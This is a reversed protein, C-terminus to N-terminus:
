FVEEDDLVYEVGSVIVKRKYIEVDSAIVTRPIVKERKAKERLRRGYDWLAEVQPMFSGFMSCATILQQRRHTSVGCNFMNRRFCDISGTHIKEGAVCADFVAKIVDYILAQLEEDKLWSNSLVRYEVGYSKPRFAGMAGYLEERKEGGEDWYKQFPYLYCDLVRVIYRCDELHRECTIDAGETWGLHIHGAGTRFSVKANPVPNQKGTWANFDPECGLETAKAPQSKIYKEDFYAVPSPDIEYGEVMGALTGMVSKLNFVFEQANKAPDINFELAMGDVQVAGYPVVYPNDKTGQIMDFASVHVGNKKVFVEPDAGILLQAM